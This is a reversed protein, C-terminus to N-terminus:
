QKGEQAAALLREWRAQWNPGGDSGTNEDCRKFWAALMADTMQRPVVVQGTPAAPAAYLARAFDCRRGNWASEDRFITQQGDRYGYEYRVPEQPATLAARLAEVFSELAARHAPGVEVFDRLRECAPLALAKEVAARSM